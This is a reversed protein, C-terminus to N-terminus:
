WLIGFTVPVYTLNPGHTTFMANYRAEAFAKLHGGLRFELGGGANFGPKYTGFSAVVVNTSVTAPYCYGFFPDCFVTQLNAPQTLNLSRHYLGAGAIIYPDILKGPAMRIEPAFTLSWVDAYGGPEGFNTLAANTLGWHNYSFDLDALFNRNLNVGGRFDLNWGTNFNGSADATPISMGAGASVNFRQHDQAFCQSILLSFFLFALTTRSVVAAQM